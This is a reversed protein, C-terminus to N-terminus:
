NDLLLMLWSMDKGLTPNTVEKSFWSEHGGTQNENVITDPDDNGQVYVNDYATVALYCPLPPLHGPLTYSTVNGVNITHTYPYGPTESWYVIYGAVTPEPNANWGLTLGGDSPRVTLNQPPSLPVDTRIATSFPIYNVLGLTSDLHWDYVKNIIETLIATGWWNNTADVDASGELNGNVLEYQVTNGFINNYNLTVGTTNQDLGITSATQSLRVNFAMLNHDLVGNSYSLYVGPVRNGQNRVWSNNSLNVSYFDSFLGGGGVGGYEDSASAKNDSIINNSITCYYISYGNVGGGNYATNNTIFNEKLEGSFNYVNVGSNQNNRIINKAIVTGTYGSYTNIGHSINNQIINNSIEVVGSASIGTNGNAAITNKNLRSLGYPNPDPISSQHIYIGDSQNDFITCNTIKLTGTLSWAAIGMATNSGIVANHQITCHNILPHANYMRLAGNSSVDAGGAYEVLCYELISGSLYNGYEDYIADGSGDRFLIYGWQQDTSAHTFTINEASTGKAILTGDITFANTGGVRILVGPQITLTVGNPVYINDIVTYPSNAKSWVTNVGIIGGVDTAGVLSVGPFLLLSWIFFFVWGPLLRSKRPFSASDESLIKLDQQTQGYNRITRETKM